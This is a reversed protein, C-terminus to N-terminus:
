CTKKSSLLLIAVWKAADENKWKYNPADGFARTPQLGGMVRGRMIVQDRENAPHEAQMRKIEKPNEGMCDETLVECRWGSPRGDKGEVWYGAVARCDGTSAVYFEGRDEDVVMSVAVAGNTAPEILPLVIPRVNPKGPQSPVHGILRLPSSVIQDDLALYASTIADSITQPSVTAPSTLLSAAASPLMRQLSTKIFDTASKSSTLGAEPTNGAHLSRLSLVLMPHLTQSLLQSTAWGGHGDIVSFLKLGDGQIKDAPAKPIGEYLLQRSISDAAYRDEIPDNSALTNTAYRSVSSPKVAANNFEVSIEKGHMLKEADDASLLTHIHEM